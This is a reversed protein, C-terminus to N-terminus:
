HSESATKTIEKGGLIFGNYGNMSVNVMSDSVEDLTNFGKPYLARGLPYLWSLYKYSSLVHLSKDSMVKMMAPRYAYMKDFGLKSLDNEVKGKVRAWHSSGKESSDTGQGSLYTFTMKPNVELLTKAFSLTLDYTIKEYDEKSIGISSIGACFFCADYGNIRDKVETLDSLDPIILEELKEHSHGNARRSIALVKEVNPNDFCRLMVGEGVMGTTGTIIVKIAM